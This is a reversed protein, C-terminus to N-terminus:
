RKTDTKLLVIGGLALAIGIAVWLENNHYRRPLETFIMLSLHVISIAVGSVATVVAIVQRTKVKMEPELDAVAKNLGSL